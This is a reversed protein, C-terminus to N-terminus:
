LYNRIKRCAESHDPCSSPDQMSADCWCQMVNDPMTRRLSKIMERLDENERKIKLGVTILAQKDLVEEWWRNDRRELNFQLSKVAQILLPVATRAMSIFEADNGKYKPRFQSNSFNPPAHDVLWGLVDQWYELDWDGSTAHKEIEEWEKLQQETIM